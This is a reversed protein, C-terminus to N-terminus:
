DRLSIGEAISVVPPLLNYLANWPLGVATLSFSM